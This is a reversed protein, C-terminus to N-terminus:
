AVCPVPSVGLRGVFPWLLLSHWTADRLRFADAADGGGDGYGDMCSALCRRCARRQFIPRRANVGRRGVNRCNQTPWGAIGLFRRRSRKGAHCVKLCGCRGGFQQVLSDAVAFTRTRHLLITSGPFTGRTRDASVPLDIGPKDRAATNCCASCVVPVTGAGFPIVGSKKATKFSPLPRRRHPLSHSPLSADVRRYLEFWAVPFTLTCCIDCRVYATLSKGQRHRHLLCRLTHPTCSLGSELGPVQPTSHVALFLGVFRNQKLHMWIKDTWNMLLAGHAGRAGACFSSHRASPALHSAASYWRGSRPTRSFLLRFQESTMDDHQGAYGFSRLSIAAYLYLVAMRTM